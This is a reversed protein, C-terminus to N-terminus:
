SLARNLVSALVASSVPEQLVAIVNADRPGDRTVQESYGVLLVVPLGPIVNWWHARLGAM